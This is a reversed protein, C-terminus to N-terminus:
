KESQEDCGLEARVVVGLVDKLFPVDHGVTEKQMYERRENSANGRENRRL